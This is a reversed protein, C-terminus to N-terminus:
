SPAFCCPQPTRRPESVQALLHQIAEQNARKHAQSAEYLEAIDSLVPLVAALQGGFRPVVSLVRTLFCWALRPPLKVGM